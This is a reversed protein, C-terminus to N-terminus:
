TKVEVLNTQRAQSSQFLDIPYVFAELERSEENDTAIKREIAAERSQYIEPTHLAAINAPDGDFDRYLVVHIDEVVEGKDSQITVTCKDAHISSKGNKNISEERTLADSEKKFACPILSETEGGDDKHELFTVMWVRTKGRRKIEMENYNYM